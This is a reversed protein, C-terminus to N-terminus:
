ISEAIDLAQVNREGPLERVGLQVRACQGSGAGGILGNLVDALSLEM